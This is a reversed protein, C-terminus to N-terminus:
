PDIRGASFRALGVEAIAPPGTRRDAVRTFADLNKKDSDPLTHLYKQTTQIQAHGM